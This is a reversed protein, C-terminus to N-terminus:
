FNLYFDKTLGKYAESYVNKDQYIILDEERIKEVKSLSFETMIRIISQDAFSRVYCIREIYLQHKRATEIANNMEDTPLILAIRGNPTLLNRAKSILKEITLHIQHRVANKDLHHSLLAASFYPPNSVILDFPETSIFDAFDVKEFSLQHPLPFNHKNELADQVSPLHIDIGKIKAEQFRQALLLSILGSGTGIDLINKPTFHQAVWAGLLVGDTGVKM